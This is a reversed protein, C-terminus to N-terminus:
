QVTVTREIQEVGQDPYTITCRVTYRGAAGFTYNWGEIITGNVTWVIKSSTMPLNTLGLQVTEGLAARGKLGTIAAYPATLAGTTFEIEDTLKQPNTSAPAAYLAVSYRTDPLLGLVPISSPTGTLAIRTGVKELNRVDLYYPTSTGHKAYLAESISVVVSRQYARFSLPLGTGQGTRTSFSASTGSNSISILEVQLGNGRWDIGGYSRGTFETKAATGPYFVRGVLSRITAISQTSALADIVAGGSEVIRVCPHSRVSNVTNNTWRDAAKTGAVSSTSRDVHYVLLGTGGLYADWGNSGRHEVVYFEGPDLTPIRYGYAQQGVASLSVREDAQLETLAEWGLLWRELASYNPPTRGDNNYNGTGMISLHYLGVSKGNVEGDTDYFDPLGLVHGFEHCFTGIGALSRVGTASNISLESGCAYSRVYVGSLQLSGGDLSWRHPWVTDDGGGEAENVGAYIVYVNDVVGDNDTDYQKFDVASAAARCADVVMQRPNADPISGTGTNRGYYAMPQPLTYPGYVDFSPAYAGNSQDAFYRQASSAGVNLLNYFAQRNNAPRFAVDQFQVLLVLAKAPSAVPTNTAKSASFREVLPYYPRDAGAGRGDLQGKPRGAIAWSEQASRDAPDSARVDGSRSATPEYYYYIGDRQVIQYGDVTSTWRAFEDGRVVITLRSGDAQTVAIPTERAPIGWAKAGFLLAGVVAIIAVRRM